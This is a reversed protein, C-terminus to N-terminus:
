EQIVVPSNDRERAVRAVETLVPDRPGRLLIEPGARGAGEFPLGTWHDRARRAAGRRRPPPDLFDYDFEEFGPLKELSRQAM